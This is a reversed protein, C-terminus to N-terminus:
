SGPMSRREYVVTDRRQEGPTQNAAERMAILEYGLKEPV